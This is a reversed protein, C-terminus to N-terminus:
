WNADRWTVSVSAEANVADPDCRFALSSEGPELQFLQEPSSQATATHIRSATGNLIVTGTGTDVTLVDQPGLAIDYELRLDDGLRTLSPRRVPGHFEIVPTAPADGANVATLVGNASSGGWALPWKLGGSWDLGAERRPLGTTATREEVSFRRPDACVWQVTAKATGHTVFMRDHPISRQNVRARVALTEGHLRVALWQEGSHVATAARFRRAVAAAQEPREPLLWVPATVTRAQSWQAGPWAGHQDPRLVDGSDLAPLDAWGTLGSDAIGYETGPGFLLGAWQIQGDLTILSGPPETGTNMQTPDPAM